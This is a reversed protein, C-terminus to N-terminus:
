KYDKFSGWYEVRNYEPYISYFYIWIPAEDLAPYTEFLAKDGYRMAELALPLERSFIKYRRAANERGMEGGVYVFANFVYQNNICRWEGFVEDRTRNIKDWAYTLGITLFLEATIDSHTLTYKRGIIPKTPTVSNRFEVQLKEPNLRRM